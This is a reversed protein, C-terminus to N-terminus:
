KELILKRTWLDVKPYKYLFTIGYIMNKRYLYFSKISFHIGIRGIKKTKIHIHKM